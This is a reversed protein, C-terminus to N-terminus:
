KCYIKLCFTMEIIDKKESSLNQLTEQYKCISIHLFCLM